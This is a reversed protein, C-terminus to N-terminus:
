RRRLLVGQDSPVASVPLMLTLRQVVDAQNDLVLVGSIRTAGLESDAILIPKRFQRNLDAIVTTLPQDRYVLRGSRWSFAEAPEVARLQEGAAGVDLRQGHILRYAHGSPDGTPRVEVVGRAVTVSFGDPRSRVDFQTGVVRVSRGAAAVTFPRNKDPAVDFIAEGEPMSLRRENRALTVTLRSKANLDIVSGDALKVTRHEGVGTSYTEARPALLLPPLVTVALAAAAALGGAALFGRRGVLGRGRRAAEVALERRLDGASAEYARSVALVSDYAPGNAPSADLWADFALADAESLDTSQLRVLWDGAEALAHDERHEFAGSM